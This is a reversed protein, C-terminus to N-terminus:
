TKGLFTFEREDRVCISGTVLLTVEIMRPTQDFYDSHIRSCVKVKRKFSQPTSLRTKSVRLIRRQVFNNMDDM